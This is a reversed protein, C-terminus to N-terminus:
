YGGYYKRLFWEATLLTLILFFLQKYNILEESKKEIYSIAKIDDNNKITEYLQSIDSGYYMGARASNSMNFLVNHNAVGTAYETMVPIVTFIGQKRYKKGDIVTEAKWSYDGVPLKGADAKLTKGYKKFDYKKINGASDKISLSIKETDSLKYNKDFVEAKFIINRNEPIIKEATIKFRSKEDKSMMFQVIGNILENFLYHNHNTKYDYMRWRWIGEGTIVATKHKGTGTFFVFLAQGTNINKIKRYFLISSQGSINYDGFPSLLPPANLTITEIEPNVNFLKFNKNFEGTVEDPANSYAGTTLGTNLNDFQQLSSGIGLMYIVPINGRSIKKMLSTAPNYVSPLGNLIILNYNNIDKSFNNVRFYETDINRNLKLAERIAAIDPHPSDSLILIKQKRDNIEIIIEKYNNKVTLENKIESLKIKLKKFGTETAKLKIDFTNFFNDSNIYINKDYVIKKNDSVTLRTKEGKLKEAKVSIRVPFETNLFASPNFKVDNLILDKRINTDGVAVTYLPFNINRVEYVPNRGKNFIGDSLLIVAGINQNYFREKIGTIADAIDTEKDSFDLKNGARLNEGFIFTKFHYDADNAFYDTLQKAINKVKVSDSALSESNDAAFIILPKEITKGYNNLVPSLLLFLVASVTIFRLVFMLYKIFEPAEDFKTEKRYLFFAFLFGGAICLPLFWISYQTTIDPM